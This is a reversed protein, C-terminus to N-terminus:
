LRLKGRVGRNKAFYSAGLIYLVGMVLASVAQILFNKWHLFASGQLLYNYVLFRSLSEFFSAFILQVIFWIESDRGFRKVFVLSCLFAFLYSVVSVGPIEASSLDRALGSLMALAASTWIDRKEFYLAVSIFVGVPLVYYSFGFFSSLFVEALLSVMYLWITKDKDM